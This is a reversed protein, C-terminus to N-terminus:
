TLNKLRNPDQSSHTVAVVEVTTNKENVFFIIKYKWKLIFRYTENEDSIEHVIPRGMPLKELKQIEEAIGEAVNLATTESVNEELYRFIDNIHQRAKNTLVVHYIDVM